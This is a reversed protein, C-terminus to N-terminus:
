AGVLAAASVDGSGMRIMVAVGLYVLFCGGALIALSIPVTFAAFAGQVSFMTRLSMGVLILGFIILGTATLILAWNKDFFTSFATDRSVLYGVLTVVTAVLTAVGFLFVAVKAM